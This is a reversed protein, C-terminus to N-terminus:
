YRYKSITTGRNVGIRGQQWSARGQVDTLQTQITAADFKASIQAQAM